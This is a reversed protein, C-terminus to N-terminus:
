AVAADGADAAAYRAPRPGSVSGPPAAPSAKRRVESAASSGAGPRGSMSSTMPAPERAPSMSPISREKSPSDLKLM